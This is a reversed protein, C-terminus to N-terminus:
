LFDQSALFLEARQQAALFSLSQGLADAFDSARRLPFRGLGPPLPYTKGDDPIRLTRHFAIEVREVSIADRHLTVSRAQEAM